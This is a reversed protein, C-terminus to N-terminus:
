IQFFHHWIAMVTQLPSDRGILDSLLITQLPCSHGLPLVPVKFGSKWALVTTLIDLYLKRCNQTLGIKCVHNLSLQKIHSPEEVM